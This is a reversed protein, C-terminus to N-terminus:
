RGVKTRFNHARQQGLKGCFLRGFTQSRAPLPPAPLPSARVDAAVVHSGSSDVAIDNLPGDGAINVGLGARRGALDALHAQPDDLGEADFSRRGVDLPEGPGLTQLEALNTATRKTEDVVVTRTISFTSTSHAMAM